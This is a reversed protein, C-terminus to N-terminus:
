RSERQAGAATTQAQARACSGPAANQDAHREIRELYDKRGVPDLAM